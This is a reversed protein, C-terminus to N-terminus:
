TCREDLTEVRCDGVSSGVAEGVAAGVSSGVATLGSMMSQEHQSWALDKLGRAAISLGGRAVRSRRRGGTGGLGGALGRGGGRGVRRGVGRLHTPQTPLPRLLHCEHGEQPIVPASRPASKSGWRRGSRRASPPLDINDRLKKKSRNQASAYREHSLARSRRGGLLRGRRRCRRGRLHTSGLGQSIRESDQPGSTESHLVGRGGRGLLGGRRGRVERRRRRGRARSQVGRSVGRGRRRSYTVIDHHFPTCISASGDQFHRHLIGGGARRLLGRGAGRRGRGLLGGRGGGAVRRVLGRGVRRREGRVLGGGVGRGVGRCGRRSYTHQTHDCAKNLSV